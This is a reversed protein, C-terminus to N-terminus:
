GTLGTLSIGRIIHRQFIIFLLIPPISAMGFAAFLVNNPTGLSRNHWNEFLNVMLPMRDYDSQMLVYPWLFDKWSAMITLISIVALVARSMPLVIRILLDWANAGDIRAANIIEDPIDDFFSKLLFLNFANVAEPLLVGLYAYNGSGINWHVLPLSSVNVYQPILYSVPPVLLTALFFGLVVGGFAPRLKSLSFAATVSIVAQFFWSGAVLILTNRLYLGLNLLDWSNKFNAWDPNSPIWAPPLTAIDISTKLGDTFLWYMPVLTTLTLFALIAFVLWYGIRVSLRSRELPSILTREDASESRRRRRAAIAVPAPLEASQSPLTAM